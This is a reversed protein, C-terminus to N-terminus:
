RARIRLFSGGQKAPAILTIEDDKGFKGAVADGAPADAGGPRESESIGYALFPVTRKVTVFVHGDLVRIGTIEPKAVDVGSAIQSTATAEAARRSAIGGSAAAFADGVRGVTNVRKAKGALSVKGDSAFVRTDLLYVAWEGGAYKTKAAEADVEFLVTPCRGGKAVPAAVVVEGNEGAGDEAIAFKSFDKSWCLAYCEGDLVGSGDAYKDPGPTSFTVVVDNQAATAFLAAFCAIGDLFFRKM